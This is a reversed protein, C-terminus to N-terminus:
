IQIYNVRWRFWCCCERTLFLLTGYLVFLLMWMLHEMEFCLNLKKGMKLIM